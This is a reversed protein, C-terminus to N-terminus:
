ECYLSAMCGQLPAQGWTYLKATCESSSPRWSRRGDKGRGLKASAVGLAQHMRSIVAFVDPPLAAKWLKLLYAHAM